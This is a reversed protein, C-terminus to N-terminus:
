TRYGSEQSAKIGAFMTEIAQRFALIGAFVRRGTHPLSFGSNETIPREVAVPATATATAAILFLLAAHFSGVAPFFM